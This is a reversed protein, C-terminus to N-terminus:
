IKLFYKTIINVHKEAKDINIKILSSKFSAGKEKYKIFYEM